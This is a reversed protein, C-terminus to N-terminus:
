VDGALPIREFNPDFFQLVQMPTWGSLKKFEKTMHAQDFYGSLCAAEAGSMQKMFGISRYFRLIRAYDSLTIGLM